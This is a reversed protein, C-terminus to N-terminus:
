LGSHYHICEEYKWNAIKLMNEATKNKPNRCGPFRQKERFLSSYSFSFLCGKDGSM